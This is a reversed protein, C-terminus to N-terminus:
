AISITLKIKDDAAIGLRKRIQAKLPLLYLGSKSDPFISTKWSIEAIVAEVAISGWAKKTTSYKTKITQSVDKPVSM